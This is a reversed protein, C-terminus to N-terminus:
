RQCEPCWFTARQQQVFRVVPEGCRRCPEGERGYVALYRGYGGSVGRADQFDSFTTGCADIAARLIRRTARHLRRVEDRDLSVASRDPAIRAAFLIESAYINGLGVIRDQRLLWPKIPTRSGAILGTLVSATFRRSLPEAGAPRARSRSAVLRLTGFRRPDTFLLWGRDLELTARLPLTAPTPPAAVVQLRGTMRLHVCLWRRGDGGLELVVQKGMRRVDRIPRGPLDAVLAPDDLKPDILAVSLIRRGELSPALQRAVTEVEPLEPV